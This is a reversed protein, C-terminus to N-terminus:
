GRVMGIAAVFLGLALILPLFDVVTRTMSGDLYGPPKYDYTVNYEDTTDNIEDNGDDDVDADTVNFEGTEYDVTYDSEPVLYTTSDFSDKLWLTESDALLGDEVTSVTFVDPVAGSSAVTENTVTNTDTVMTNSVVPIAVAGIVVVAVVLGISSQVLNSAM